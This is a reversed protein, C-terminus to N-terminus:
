TELGLLEQSIAMEFNSRNTWEAELDLELDLLPGVSFVRRMQIYFDM